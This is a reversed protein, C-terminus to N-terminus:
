RLKSLSNVNFKAPNLGQDFTYNSWNLQTSAGTLHNVMNMRGARWFKGEYLKYGSVTLTKLHRGSRNFYQSKQIKLNKTDFWVRQKSYGSASTPFRDIVHCTGASCPEDKIWIYTFKDIEQDVMDEFSFESGVFSGSRGTGSIRRTRSVAPLYLWQDDKKGAYAHTLLATNRIDGPWEFILLSRSSTRGSSVWSAKFKRNSTGGGASKLIMEGTVTLDKYSSTRELSADVIRYGKEAATEAQGANALGTIALILFARRFM